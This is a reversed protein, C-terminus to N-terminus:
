WNESGYNKYLEINEKLKNIVSDIKELTESNNTKAKLLELEILEEKKARIKQKIKEQQEFLFWSYGCNPPVVAWATRPFVKCLLPRNEYNTCLNDAGIYKCKYFTIKNDKFNTRKTINDVTEPSVKRAEEINEYPEFISLFDSAREDGNEAMEKLTDYPLYTTAVKCCTGCKLCLNLDTVSKIECEQM